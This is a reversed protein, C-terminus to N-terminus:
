LVDYGIIYPSVKFTHVENSFFFLLFIFAISCSVILRDSKSSLSEVFMPISVIMPFYFYMASRLLISGNFLQMLCVSAMLINAAYKIQKQEPKKTHFFAWVSLIAIMLMAIFLFGLQQTSETSYEYHNKEFLDFVVGIGAVNLAYCAVMGIGYITIMKMNLPLKTIPYAVLFILASKHFLSACLVLLIFKILKKNNKQETITTYALMCLSLGIAQRLGTLSFVFFQFSIYIIVSLLPIPSRKKILFAVPFLIIVYLVFFFTRSSLHMMNCVKMLAIYGNEFYVYDWNDWLLSSTLRYMSIYGPIDQGVEYDRIGAFIYIYLFSLLIFVTNRKSKSAPFVFNSYFGAIFIFGVLFIYPLM